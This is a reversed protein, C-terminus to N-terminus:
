RDNIVGYKERLTQLYQEHERNYQADIEQETRTEPNKEAWEDLEDFTPFEILPPSEMIERYASEAQEVTAGCDMHDKIFRAKMDAILREVDDNLETM